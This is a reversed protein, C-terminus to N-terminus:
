ASPGLTVPVATVTRAPVLEDDSSQAGDTGGDPATGASTLREQEDALRDRGLPSDLDFTSVLCYFDGQMFDDRSSGLLEIGHTCVGLPDGDITFTAPPYDSLPRPLPTISGNLRLSSTADGYYAAVDHALTISAPFQRGPAPMLFEQLRVVSEVAPDLELGLDDHLMSRMELYLSTWGLPVTPFLDFYEIVWTLLPFRDPDSGVVDIIHEELDTGLIGHDWQLHRMLYRFLGMREAIVDCKRLRYMRLRDSETFTAASVVIGRDDARIRHLERYSPENMPSNPLLQVPWTRYKIEHVLMFQIDAKYSAVTQGPLGLMLDVPFSLGLRRFEAVLEMYRDTSINNRDIVDLTSPDVTQLGLTSTAPFGADDLIKVIKILHKTTNKAPAWTFTLPYGTRRKVDAVREAIQVDRSLIGFNADNMFISRVRNAGAWEIEALVRNLDFKRIRSMTASGWDCFTCGYPCGRNSELSLTIPWAEPDIGDFEGTLYPSPIQDLEAMRDRPATTVIRGERADVFTIGAIGALAGPNPSGGNDAIHDLLEVLTREGEGHVLVHAVDGNVRIFEEVDREYTPCSPGGHVVITRPNLEIARRAVELNRELSWVYDSCLLVVPGSRSGIAQLAVDAREPRRIEFRRTLRGDEWHRSAATLMGLSLLPGTDDHWVAFVPIRDDAGTGSEIPHAQEAAVDPRAEPADVVVPTAPGELHEEHAVTPM